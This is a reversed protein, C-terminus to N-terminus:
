RFDRVVKEELSAVFGPPMKADRAVCVAEWRRESTSLYGRILANAVGIALPCPERAGYGTPHISFADFVENLEWLNVGLGAGSDREARSLVGEAFQHLAATERCRWVIKDRGRRGGKVVRKARRVLSGAIALAEGPRECEMALNYKSLYDAESPRQRDELTM